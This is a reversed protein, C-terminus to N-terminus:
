NTVIAPAVYGAPLDDVTEVIESGTFLAKTDNLLGVCNGGCASVDYKGQLILVPATINGYEIDTTLLSPLEGLAFPESAVRYAWEAVSHEFYPEAFYVYREAYLDSSTLYGSDLESWRGPDQLNAIRFGAGALFPDFYTFTGSFGTLVVADVATQSASATSIYSVYSHGILAVQSANATQRAYTILSNLVATEVQFQADSLSNVRAPVTLNTKHEFYLDHYITVSKSSSGVGIRDYNLVSYGARQM